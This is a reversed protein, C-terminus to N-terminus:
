KCYLPPPLSPPRNHASRTPEPYETQSRYRCGVRYTALGRVPTLAIVELQWLRSDNWLYMAVPIHKARVDSTIDTVLQLYDKCSNKELFQVLVPIPWNRHDLPNNTPSPAIRRFRLCRRTLILHSDPSIAPRRSRRLRLRDRLNIEFSGSCCRM